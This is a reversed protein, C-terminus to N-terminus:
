YNKWLKIYEPNIIFGRKIMQAYRMIGRIKKM